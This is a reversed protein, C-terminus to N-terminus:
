HPCAQARVAQRTFPRLGAFLLLFRMCRLVGRAALDQPSSSTNALSPVNYLTERTYVIILLRLQPPSIGGFLNKGTTIKKKEKASM